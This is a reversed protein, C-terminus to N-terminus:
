HSTLLTLFHSSTNWGRDDDLDRFPDLSSLFEDSHLKRLKREPITNTRTASMVRPRPGHSSLARPPGRECRLSMNRVIVDCLSFTRTQSKDSVGMAFRNVINNFVHFVFWLLHEFILVKVQFNFHFMLNLNLLPFGHVTRKGVEVGEGLCSMRRYWLLM